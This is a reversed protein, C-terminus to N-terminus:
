CLSSTVVGPREEETCAFYFDPGWKDVCCIGLPGNSLAHTLYTRAMLENRDAQRLIDGDEEPVRLANCWAYGTGLEHTELTPYDISSWYTIKKFDSAKEVEQVCTGDACFGLGPPLEPFADVRQQELDDTFPDIDRAEATFTALPKAALYMRHSHLFLDDTPNHTVRLLTVHPVDAPVPQAHGDVFSSPDARTENGGLQVFAHGCILFPADPHSGGASPDSSVLELVEHKKGEFAAQFVYHLDLLTCELELAGRVLSSPHQEAEEKTAYSAVKCLKQPVFRVFGAWSGDGQSAFDWNCYNAHVCVFSKM